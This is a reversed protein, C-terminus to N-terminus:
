KTLKLKNKLFGFSTDLGCYLAWEYGMNSRRPYKNCHGYKGFVDHFLDIMAPHTTATTVEVTNPTRQQAYLDGARLGLLYAKEGEDGSFPSRPYKLPCGGRRAPIRFRKMWRRVSSQAIGLEKAIQRTSKKELVYSQRLRYATIPSESKYKWSNMRIGM